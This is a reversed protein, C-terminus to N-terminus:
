QHAHAAGDEDIWVLRHAEHAAPWRLRGWQRRVVEDPVRRARQRNRMAAVEPRALVGVLTVLAEHRAGVALPLARQSPVLSTADWVADNAGLAADLEALGRTLAEPDDAGGARLRDLNVVRGGLREAASSKGAGAVGVLVALRRPTRGLLPHARAAAEEPSVVARRSWAALAEGRVLQWTDEPLGTPLLARLAATWREVAEPELLGADEAVLRSWRVQELEDGDAGREALTHLARLDCSRALSVLGGPRTQDDV